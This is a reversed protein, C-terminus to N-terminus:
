GAAAEAGVEGADAQVGGVVVVEGLGEAVVEVADGVGEGEAETLNVAAVDRVHGVGVEAAGAERGEGPGAEARGARGTSAAEEAVEVEAAAGGAGGGAGEGSAAGGGGGARASGSGGGCRKRFEGFCKRLRVALEDVDAHTTGLAAAATLYTSPYPQASHSGYHPFALGAVAQAKGPAVVRTGSVCRATGTGTTPLPM